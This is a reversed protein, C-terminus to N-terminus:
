QFYELIIEDCKKLIPSFLDAFDALRKNNLM